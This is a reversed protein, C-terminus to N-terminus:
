YLFFCFLDRALVQPAVNSPPSAGPTFHDWGGSCPLAKGLSVSLANGEGGRCGSQRVAERPRSRGSQPFNCTEPLSKHPWM